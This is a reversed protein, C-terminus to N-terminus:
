FQRFYSHIDAAPQDTWYTQLESRRGLRLADRGTMRFFAAVPAFVLFFLVALMARSVLWGIPFAAIMWGTYVPRVAAPRILGLGGIVIALAAIGWVSGGHHGNVARWAALTMFFAIWLLAFQRLKKESPVAIVDAWQM